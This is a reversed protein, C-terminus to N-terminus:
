VSSGAQRAGLCLQVFECAKAAWSEHAMARQVVAKRGAVDPQLGRSLVATWDAASAAINIHEKLLLAEPMPTAIVTKGTVIYEKLKLPSISATFDNVVYAIFLVDLGKVLASLEGYPVSGTFHVNPRSRLVATPATALPGTFVFEMNPNAATVAAMLSQDTREDFLGFYGARPKPIGRLCPHEADAEASFLPLDVGHTLLHVPKQGVGLKQYLVRSTAVLVDAGAILQREMDRVLDHELGPWKTFDDVCYYVVRSAGFDNVYDCANPVTSVVVPRHIKLEAAARRVSRLVWRKNLWRVLRISSFPLMFPQCVHVPPEPKGSGRSGGHRGKLMKSIKLGAKRLDSGSLKPSRMGITNVWLVTHRVAIQRFLHQCSSPHEGWDDSFVIFPPNGGPVAADQNALRASM